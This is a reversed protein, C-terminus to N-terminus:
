KKIVTAAAVLNPLHLGEESHLAVDKLYFSTFTSHSKWYCKKNIDSLSHNQGFSLSSAISRIEHVSVKNIIRQQQDSNKYAFKITNRIWSSLTNKSIEKPHDPKLSIFFLKKSGRFKQTRFKYIRIARVPCLLRDPLDPGAYDFLAPVQFTRPASELMMDQNKALFHDTTELQVNTWDEDHKLKKFSLASLESIRAATALSALFATKWAVFKIKASLM